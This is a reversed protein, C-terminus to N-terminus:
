SGTLSGGRTPRKRKLVKEVIEIIAGLKGWARATLEVQCLQGIFHLLMWILRSDTDTPRPTNSLQSVHFVRPACDCLEILEGTSVKARQGAYPNQESAKMQVIVSDLMKLLRQLTLGFESSTFNSKAFANNEFAGTNGPARLQGVPKARHASLRHM